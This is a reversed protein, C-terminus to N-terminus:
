DKARCVSSVDIVSLCEGDDDDDDDDPPVGVIHAHKWSGGGCLVIKHKVTHQIYVWICIASTM